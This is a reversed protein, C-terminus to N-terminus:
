EVDVVRQEVVVAHLVVESVVQLALEAGGAPVLVPCDELLQAILKAVCVIEARQLAITERGLAAAVVIRAQQQHRRKEDVIRKRLPEIWLCEFHDIM